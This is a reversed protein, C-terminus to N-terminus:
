KLFEQFRAVLREYPALWNAHISRAEGNIGGGERLWRKVRGAITLNPIDTPRTFLALEQDRFCEPMVLRFIRTCKLGYFRLHRAFAPGIDWGSYDFDGYFAIEVEHIGLKKLEEACYESALLSPNGKLILLTVDFKEQLQRGYVELLDGKEVLLIKQPRTRGIVRDDTAPDRFGFQRYTFMKYDYVMSFIAHLFIHYHRDKASLPRWAARLQARTLFGARYLTAQLPRYFYESFDKGYPVTGTRCYMQYSQYLINCILFYATPFHKRLVAAPAFAIEFPYDRIRMRLLKHEDASLRDFGPIGLLQQLRFTNITPANKLEVGGDMGLVEKSTRRIRNHHVWCTRTFRVLGPHHAAALEAEIGAPVRSGDELQWCAGEPSDQLCIVQEPRCPLAPGGQLSPLSPAPAASPLPQDTLQFGAPDKGDSILHPQIWHEGCAVWPGTPVPGPHHFVQGDVLVIRWRGFLTPSWAAIEEPDALYLQTDTVQLPIRRFPAPAPAVYPHPLDQVCQQLASLSALQVPRGFWTTDLQELIRLVKEQNTKDIRYLILHLPRPLQPVMRELPLRDGRLKSLLLSVGVREAAIVAQESETEPAILLVEPRVKGVFRRLPEPEEFGLQSLHFIGKAHVLYSLAANLEKKGVPIGSHRAATEVPHVAFRIPDRGYDNPQGNEHQLVVQWLLNYMYYQLTPCDRRIREPDASMLDYPFDRLLRLVPPDNRDIFTLSDVGLARYAAPFRPAAFEIREGNDLLFWGKVPKSTMGYSRVRETNIMHSKGVLCLQPYLEGAQDPRLDCPELGSDTRWFYDGGHMEFAILGEPLDTEEEQPALEDLPAYPYLYDGPDKWYDGERTLLYPNVWSQHLRVWPGPPPPGPRRGVRGDALVVRTHNPYVPTLSAIEWESVFLNEYATEIALMAM